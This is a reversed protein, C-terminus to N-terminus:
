RLVKMGGFQYKVMKETSKWFFIILYIGWFITFPVAGWFLILNANTMIDNMSMFGLSWVLENLVSTFIILSLYIGFLGVIWLKTKLLNLYFGIQSAKRLSYKESIGMLDKEMSNKIILRVSFFMLFCFLILFFLYVFIDSIDFYEGTPTVDFYGTIKGNDSGDYFWVEWAYRGLAIPTFNYDCYGGNNIGEVGKVFYDNSPYQITVNCICTLCPSIDLNSMPNSLKSMENLKFNFNATVEQAQVFNSLLLSLLIFTFIWYKM